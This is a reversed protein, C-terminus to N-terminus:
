KWLGTGVRGTFEEEGSNVDSGMLWARQYDGLTTSFTCGCLVRYM